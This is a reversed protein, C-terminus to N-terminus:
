KKSFSEIANLYMRWGSFGFFSMVKTNEKNRSPHMYFYEEKMSEEPIESVYGVIYRGPKHSESDKNAIFRRGCGNDWFEANEKLLIEILDGKQIDIM